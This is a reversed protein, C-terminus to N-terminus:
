SKEPTQIDVMTASVMNLIEERTGTLIVNNTVNKAGEMPKAGAASPKNKVFAAQKLRQDAKKLQLDTKHTIAATVNGYLSGLVELYRGRYKPDIQDVEAWAGKFARLGHNILEELQREGEAMKTAIDNLPPLEQNPVEMIEHPAVLVLESSLMDAESQKDEDPIAMGLVEAVRKHVAM